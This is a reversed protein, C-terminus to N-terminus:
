KENSNGKSPFHLFNEFDNLTLRIPTNMLFSTIAIVNDDSEDYKIKVNSYFARVLNIYTLLFIKLFDISGWIQFVLLYSFNISELMAFYIKRSEWVQKSAFNRNCWEQETEFHFFENFSSRFWSSPNSFSTGTRPRKKPDM